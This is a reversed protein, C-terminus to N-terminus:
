KHIRQVRYWAKMCTHTTHVAYEGMGGKERGKVRGVLVQALVWGILVGDSEWSM